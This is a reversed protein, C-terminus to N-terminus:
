EAAGKITLWACFASIFLFALLVAKLADMLQADTIIM